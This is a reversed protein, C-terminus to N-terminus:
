NAFFFGVKKQFNCIFTDKDHCYYLQKISFRDTACFLKQREEDWLGFAFMGRLKQLCDEQWRQYAAIIVETDTNTKFQYGDKLENRLERWNYIEGNFVLSIKGNSSKM